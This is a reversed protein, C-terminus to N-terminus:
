KEKFYYVFFLFTDQWLSIIIDTLTKISYFILLGYTLNVTLTTNLFLLLLTTITTIIFIIIWTAIVFKTKAKFFKFTEKITFFARKNKTLLIPYRFLLIFNIIQYSIKIMFYSITIFILSNSLSLVHPFITNLVLILLAMCVFIFIKLEIIRLTYMKGAKFANKITVKQNKAVMKILGFKIALLGSGVLFNIIIFSIFALFINLFNNGFSLNLYTAIAGIDQEFLLSPNKTILPFLGTILLFALILGLNTLFLLTSPFFLLPQKIPAKLSNLLIQKYKM